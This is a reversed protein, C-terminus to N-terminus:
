PSPDANLILPKNWVLVRYTGVYYTHAPSGWTSTATASDDSGWPIALNYVFFQFRDGAYWYTASERTYRRIQGDPGAVVPRVTVKGRSEVTTISASWYSGIGNTLHHAELFSALQAAPQGPDPQALNYGLGAAFCLAVAVGATTVVGAALRGASSAGARSFAAHRATPSRRLSAVARALMRGTLIAGFVVAATLYRAYEVDRPNLALAGYAIPPGIVAIVLMDDLRWLRAAVTGNSSDASDTQQPMQLHAGTPGTLARQRGTLADTVLMVLVAIFAAAMALAGVVHVYQLAAPVGGTGFLTSRVGTLEAGLSAAHRLNPLILHLSTPNATGIGFTGVAKAIQRVIEALALGAAAAAVQAIGGRWSRTRLMAVLGGLFIPAIGYVLIQLDGLAAAALFVVAVLWKWGFRGSRLCAFAILAWLM